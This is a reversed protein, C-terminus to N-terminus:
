APVTLTFSQSADPAVGNSATITLRYVGGASAPSATSTWGLSGNTILAGAPLKGQVTILPAPAGTATFTFGRRFTITASSKSTIAPSRLPILEVSAKPYGGAYVLTSTGPDVGVFGFGAEFIRGSVATSTSNVLTIV